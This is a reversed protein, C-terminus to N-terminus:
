IIVSELSMKIKLAFALLLANQKPSALKDKRPRNRGKRAEAAWSVFGLEHSGRM